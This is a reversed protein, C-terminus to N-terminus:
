ATPTAETIWRSVMAVITEGRRVAELKLRTHLDRDLSFSLRVTGEPRKAGSEGGEAGRTGRATRAPHNEGTKKKLAFGM